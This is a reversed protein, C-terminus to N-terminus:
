GRLFRFGAVSLAVVSGCGDRALELTEGAFRDGDVLFRDRSQPRLLAAGDEQLLEGTLRLERQEGREIRLVADTPGVYDGAAEPSAPTAAPWEMLGCAVDDSPLAETTSDANQDADGAAALDLLSLCAPQPQAHGNTLVVAATCAAIEFALHCTYGTVGGGHGHVLREGQWSLQWGLSRQAPSADDESGQPSALLAATSPSLVTPAEGMAVQAWRLLDTLTSWMGGGPREGGLEMPLQRAWSGPPGCGYGLAAGAPPDWGTSTLGAPDLLAQQVFDEYAVGSARAVIAGLLAYGLNSYKFASGPAIAVRALDIRQLIEQTSPFPAKSWDRTPPEGVLGSRHELLRRITLAELRHGNVPLARLQPLHAVAPDDLELAGREALLAVAAATFTKTVSGIRLPTTVTMPIEGEVDALGTAHEWCSGDTTRVAASVGPSRLSRRLSDFRRELAGARRGPEEATLGM